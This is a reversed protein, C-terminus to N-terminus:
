NKIIEKLIVWNILLKICVLSVVFLLQKYTKIFFLRLIEVGLIFSLALSTGEGLSLRAYTFNDKNNISPNFYGTFYTFTTKAISISILIFSITYVIIQVINTANNLINEYTKIIKM